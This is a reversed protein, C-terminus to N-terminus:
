QKGGKKGGGGGGGSGVTIKLTATDGSCNGADCSVFSVNPMKFVIEYEGTAPVRLNYGYVVKGTANIEPTIPSEVVTFDTGTITLSAQHDHVVPTMDQATATYGGGTAVTALTGYPSVRDLASPDLKVVEYGQGVEGNADWLLLEVRIPSGVKLKADGALNDGWAGTVAYSSGGTLLKCQAQWKNVKQVYFYDLPSVPYGSLPDGTPPSLVSWADIGCSAGGAAAGIMIAPVSLSFTATEDGGPPRGKGEPPGAAFAVASAVLTLWIASKLTKSTM